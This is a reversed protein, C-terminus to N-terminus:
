MRAGCQDGYIKIAYLARLMFDVLLRESASVAPHRGKASRLMWVAGRRSVGVAQVGSTSSGRAGIGVGCGM